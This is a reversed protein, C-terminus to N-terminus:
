AYGWDDTGGHREGPVLITIARKLGVQAHVCDTRNGCMSHRLTLIDVMAGQVTPSDAAGVTHDIGFYSHRHPLLRYVPSPAAFYMLRQRVANTANANSSGAAAQPCASKHDAIRHRLNQEVGRLVGIVARDARVRARDGGIRVTIHELGILGLM